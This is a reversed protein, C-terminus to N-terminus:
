TRVGCSVREGNLSAVVMDPVSCTRNTRAVSGSRRHSTEELLKVDTHGFDLAFESLADSTADRRKSAAVSRRKSAAVPVLLQENQPTVYVWIHLGPTRMQASQARSASSSPVWQCGADSVM